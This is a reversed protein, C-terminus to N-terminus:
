FCNLFNRNARVFNNKWSSTLPNWLYNKKRYAKWPYIWNKRFEQRPFLFGMWLTLFNPKQFSASYVTIWECYFFKKTVLDKQELFNCNSHSFFILFSWALFYQFHAGKQKMCSWAPRRVQRGTPKNNAAIACHSRWDNKKTGECYKDRAM